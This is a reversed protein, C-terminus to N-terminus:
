SCAIVVNKDTQVVKEVVKSANVLGGSLVLEAKATKKFIGTGNTTTMIVFKGGVSSETFESPSNGLEFNEIRVGNREGALVTIDGGLKSRMEGAEGPGETPIVGKAGAMLAACVSTSSRLVDVVIVTKDELNADNFPLATLYLEINM